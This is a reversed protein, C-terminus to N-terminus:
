SGVLSLKFRGFFCGALASVLNVYPAKCLMVGKWMCLMYENTIM